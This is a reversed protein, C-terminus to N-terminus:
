IKWFLNILIYKYVVPLRSGINVSCLVCLIHKTGVKSFPPSPTAPTHKKGINSRGIIFIFSPMCFVAYMFQITCVNERVPCATGCWWGGIDCGFAPWNVISRKYGRPRTNRYCLIAFRGFINEYGHEVCFLSPSTKM